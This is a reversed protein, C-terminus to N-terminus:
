RYGIGYAADGDFYKLRDTFDRIRVNASRRRIGAKIMPSGYYRRHILYEVDLDSDEDILDLKLLMDVEEPNSIRDMAVVQSCTNALIELVRDNQTRVALM